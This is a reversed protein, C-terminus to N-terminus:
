SIVEFTAQCKGTFTYGGLGASLTKMVLWTNPSITMLSAGTTEDVAAQMGAPTTSAGAHWAFSGQAGSALAAAKIIPNTTTAFATTSTSLDFSMATSTGVSVTTSWRMLTSTSSPSLLSCPTTTAAAYNGVRYETLIGGVRFWRSPIDALSGAVPTEPAPTEVTKEPGKNLSVFGAVALIGVVVIGTIIKNNM